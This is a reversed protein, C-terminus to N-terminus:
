EHLMERKYTEYMVKDANRISKRLWDIKLDMLETEPLGYQIGATKLREVFDHVCLAAAVSINLSETFGYMPVKVYEDAQEIAFDSLGGHETGFIFATKISVDLDGIFKDDKHPTTAVIKYGEKRLSEYAEATEKYKYLSLWKPSGKAIDPNIKYASEGEIIHLDQLGFCECSRIIASGNQSQYVNELVVTVHKTRQSAVKDFLAFRSETCYQRCIDYLKQKEEYSLEDIFHKKM